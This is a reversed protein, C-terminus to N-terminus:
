CRDSGELIPFEQNEPFTEFVDVPFGEISGTLEVKVNSAFMTPAEDTGGMELDVTDQWGITGAGALDFEDGFTLTGSGSSMDVTADIDFAIGSGFDAQILYRWTGFAGDCSFFARTTVGAGLAGLDISVPGDFGGGVGTLSTAGTPATATAGTPATEATAGTGGDSLGEVQTSGSSCSGVVLAALLALAPLARRM